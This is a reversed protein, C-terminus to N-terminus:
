KLDWLIVNNIKFSDWMGVILIFFLVMGVFINKDWMGGDNESEDWMRLFWVRLLRM